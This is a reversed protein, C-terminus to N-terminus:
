KLSNEIPHWIRWKSKKRRDDWLKHNSFQSFGIYTFANFNLIVEAAHMYGDFEVLNFRDYKLNLTKPGTATWNWNLCRNLICNNSFNAFDRPYRATLPRKRTLFLRITPGVPLSSWKPIPIVRPVTGLQNGTKWTMTGTHERFPEPSHGYM